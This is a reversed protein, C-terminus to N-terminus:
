KRSVKELKPFELTKDENECELNGCNTRSHKKCKEPFAKHPCIVPETDFDFTQNCIVCAIKM